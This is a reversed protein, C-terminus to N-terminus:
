AYTNATDSVFSQGTASNPTGIENPDIDFAIGADQGFLTFGIINSTSTLNKLTWMGYAGTQNVPDKFRGISGGQQILSWNTKVVGGSFGNKDLIADGTNLPASSIAAWYGVDNTQDQFYVTVKLDTLKDGLLENSSVIYAANAIHSIALMVGLTLLKRFM